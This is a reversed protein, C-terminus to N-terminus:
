RRRRRLVVLGLALAVWGSGGSGGSCTVGKIIGEDKGDLSWRASHDMDCATNGDYTIVVVHDDSTITTTGSFGEGPCAANDRVQDATAATVTGGDFFNGTRTITGSGNWTTPTDYTGAVTGSYHTTTSIGGDSVLEVEFTHMDPAQETITVTGTSLLLGGFADNGFADLTVTRTPSGHEVTATGGWQHGDTDTCGGTVTTTTGATATVPCAPDGYDFKGDAFAVPERVWEFAGIASTANAWGAVNDAKDLPDGGGCAAVFAIIGLHRM